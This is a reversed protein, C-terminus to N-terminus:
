PGLDYCLLISEKTNFMHQTSALQITQMYNCNIENQSKTIILLLM